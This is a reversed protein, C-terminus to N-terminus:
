REGRAVGDAGVHASQERPRRQTFRHGVLEDDAAQRFRAQRQNEAHEAQGRDQDASRQELQPALRLEGAQASVEDGADRVLQAGRERLDPHEGFREREAADPGLFLPAARQRDDILFRAPQGVEDLVQEVEGARLPLGRM